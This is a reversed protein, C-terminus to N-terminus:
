ERGLAHKVCSEPGNHRTALDRHGGNELWVELILDPSVVGEGPPRLPPFVMWLLAFQSDRSEGASATVAPFRTSAGHGRILSDTGLHLICGLEPLDNLRCDHSSM